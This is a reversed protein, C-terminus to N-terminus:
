SAPTAGGGQLEFEAMVADQAETLAQRADATEGSLYKSYFPAAVNFQTISLKSPFIASANPLSEWISTAWPNASLWEPPSAEYEAWLSKLVPLQGAAPVANEPDGVVSEEWIRDDSSLAQLYDAAQQKNKGHTFLVSGTDWFVTGGAGGEQVPLAALHLQSPDPWTAAFRMPSNQYKIQYAVRLSAFAQEDPTQNVGGDTTGENLVDPNAYQMMEKMIELAQVSPDSNWMFLGNEDYVDTSISHTIPILSRWAHFDFTCGFPAAGSEQVTKANAIYEEWNKPAVEPDLGAKAVLDGNWAQVAIDLLFPWVYFKGDYTGENRISEPLDDLLGEPLYPDWPEISGSEVLQIMELFPTAGMYLDWTSTNDRAEQVFREIGFGQTPAVQADLPFSANFDENVVNMAPHLNLIWDYYTVSLTGETSAMVSSIHAVQALSAAVTASMGLAAARRLVDRRSSKGSLADQFLRRAQTNEIV